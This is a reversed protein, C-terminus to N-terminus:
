LIGAYNGSKRLPLPDIFDTIYIHSHIAVLFVILVNTGIVDLFEAKYMYQYSMKLCHPLM